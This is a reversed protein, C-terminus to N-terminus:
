YLCFIRSWTNGSSPLGRPGLSPEQVMGWPGGNCGPGLAGVSCRLGWDGGVAGPGPRGVLGPSGPGWMVCLGGLGGVGCQGGPGRCASEETSGPFVGLWLSLTM